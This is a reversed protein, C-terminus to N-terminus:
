AWEVMRGECIPGIGHAISVEDTLTRGCIMCTGYLAGFERAQEVTMKDELTLTNIAGKAYRFTWHDGYDNVLEKAYLNGSGNVARQVKFIVGDSKRYMGETVKPSPDAQKRERAM